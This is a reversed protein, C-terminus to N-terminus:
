FVYLYTQMSGDMFRYVNVNKPYMGQVWINLSTLKKVYKLLMTIVLMSTNEKHIRDGM